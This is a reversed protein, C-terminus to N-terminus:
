NLADEVWLTNLSISNDFKSQYSMQGLHIEKGECKQTNMDISTMSQLRSISSLAAVTRESTM